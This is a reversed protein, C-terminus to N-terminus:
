DNEDEYLANELETHDVININVQPTGKQEEPEFEGLMQLILKMNEAKGQVAGKILGLTAEDQFTKGNSAKEQLLMELRKKMTAKEKRAEGSAVGGKRAIEKREEEPRDGLSVLNDLGNAM